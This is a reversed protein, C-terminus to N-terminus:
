RGHSIVKGRKSWRGQLSLVLLPFTFIFELAAIFDKAVLNKQM